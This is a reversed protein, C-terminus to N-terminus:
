ERVHSLIHQKFIDKGTRTIIQPFPFYDKQPGIYALAFLARLLLASKFKKLTDTSKQEYSGKLICCDQYSYAPFLSCETTRNGYALTDFDFIGTIQFSSNVNFNGPHLDNHTLCDENPFYSFVRNVFLKLFPFKNFRKAIHWKQPHIPLHGWESKPISHLIHMFDSLQDFIYKKRSLTLSRFESIGICHGTVRQSVTMTLPANQFDGHFIEFTPIEFPVRPQLFELAKKQNHVEKEIFPNKFFRVVLSNNVFYTYNEKGFQKEIRFVSLNAKCSRIAKKVITYDDAEQPTLM